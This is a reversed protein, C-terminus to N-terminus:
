FSKLKFMKMLNMIVWTKVGRMHMTDYNWKLIMKKEKMITIKILNM